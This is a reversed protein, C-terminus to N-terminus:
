ALPGVSLGAFPQYFLGEKAFTIIKLFLRM